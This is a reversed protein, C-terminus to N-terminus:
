DNNWGETLKMNRGKEQDQVYAKVEEISNFWIYAFMVYNEEGKKTGCFYEVRTTDPMLPDLDDEEIEVVFAVLQEMVGDVERDQIAFPLAHKKLFKWRRRGLEYRAAKEADKDNHLIEGKWQALLEHLVGRL